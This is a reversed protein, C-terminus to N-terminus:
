ATREGESRVLALARRHHREAEQNAYSALAAEGAITYYRLARQDDGAERFHRALTAAIERSNLRDPYMREVAEGVAFHLRKRDTTLLSTYAAERVLTHRFLYELEPEVQAVRILGATELQSLHTVLTM